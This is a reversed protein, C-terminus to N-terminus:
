FARSSDLLMTVPGDNILAVKMDAGFVGNGINKVGLYKCKQAFYDVLESARRPELAGVFSPRRGKRTDGYLTFQSILLLGGQIDLLSHNMKGAEDEFIRLNVLKEALYDADKEGDGQGAGLLVCLGHQIEGVIEGDVRVSAESVRQAVARM